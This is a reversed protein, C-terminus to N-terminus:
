GKYRRMLGILAGVRGEEAIKIQIKQNRKYGVFYMRNNQPLNMKLAAHLIPQSAAVLHM